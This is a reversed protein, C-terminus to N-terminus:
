EEFDVEEDELLERRHQEIEDLVDQPLDDDGRHLAMIDPSITVPGPAEIWSPPAVPGEEGAERRAILRDVLDDGLGDIAKRDEADLVSPDDVNGVADESSIHFFSAILADLAREERERYTM